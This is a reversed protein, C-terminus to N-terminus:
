GMSSRRRVCTCGIAIHIYRVVPGTGNWFAAKIPVKIEAAKVDPIHRGDMVTLCNSCLCCAEYINVPYRNTDQNLVYKWPTTSRKSVSPHTGLERLLSINNEPCEHTDKECRRAWGRPPKEQKIHHFYQLPLTRNIQAVINDHFYPTVQATVHNVPAHLSYKVCIAIVLFLTTRKTISEM